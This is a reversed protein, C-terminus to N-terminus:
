PNSTIGASAEDVHYEGGDFGGNPGSVLTNGHVNVNRSKIVSTGYFKPAAPDRDEPGTCGAGTDKRFTNAEIRSDAIGYARVGHGLTRLDNGKITVNSLAVADDIPSESFTIPPYCSIPPTDSVNGRIELTGVNEKLPVGPYMNIAAYHYRGFHNNIIHIDKLVECPVDAELDIANDWMDNFTSNQITIGEGNTIAVTRGANEGFFRDILINRTPLVACFDGKRIDPEISVPDAWVDYAKSNLLAGGQTSDFSFGHACQGATETIRPGDFTGPPLTGRVTIDKIVINRGAQVRFSAQCQTNKVLTKLTAGNGEFTLDNRDNIEFQQDEGYCANVPFRIVSGDPVTKIFDMLEKQVPRSCDAPISPPINHVNAPGRQGDDRGILALAVAVVAVLLIIALVVARPTRFVKLIQRGM